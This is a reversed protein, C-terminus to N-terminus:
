RWIQNNNARDLANKLRNQAARHQSGPPTCPHAILSAVSQQMLQAITMEGLQPDVIVCNPHVFGVMVNCHMAVLQASLMYAMNWANACQLYFRFHWLSGPAVHCGFTNRLHLMPLTSLIGFQHVRQLGHCNRWYGITRANCPLIQQAAGFSSVTLDACGCAEIAFATATTALYGSPVTFEVNYSGAAVADFRYNGDQDTVALWADTGTVLRVQQGAFGNEGADRVGDRDQDDFVNGLVDGGTGDGIVFKEFSLVSCQGTVPHLGGSLLYPNQPGGDLNWNNGLWVKFHCRSLPFQSIRFPALRLTQGGGPATGFLQPDPNTSFPLSLTIVGATNTIGVFRDMPDNTSLVEDQGDFPTDTVHLYYTGSPTSADFAVYVNENPALFQPEGTAPDFGRPFATGVQDVVQLPFLNFSCNQAAATTALLTASALVLLHTRLM